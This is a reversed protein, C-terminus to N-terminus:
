GDMSFRDDDITVSENKIKLDGGCSPCNEINDRVPYDNGCYPCKKVLLKTQFDRFIYFLRGDKKIEESIGQRTMEVLKFRVADSDGLEATIVDMSLEGNHKRALKLIRKGIGGPTLHIGQRFLLIGPILLLSGVAILVTGTVLRSGENKSAIIFLIGLLISLIGMVSLFAGTFIKLNM